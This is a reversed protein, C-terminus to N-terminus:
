ELGIREIFSIYGLYEKLFEKGKETIFFVKKSNYYSKLILSNKELTLILRRFLLPEINLNKEINIAYARKHDKILKLITYYLPIEGNIKRLEIKTHVIYFLIIIALLDVITFINYNYTNKGPYVLIFSFITLISFMTFLYILSKRKTLKILIIILINLYLLFIFILPIVNSKYLSQFAFHLSVLSNFLFITTNNMYEAFKIFNDKIYSEWLYLVGMTLSFGHLLILLSTLNFIRLLSNSIFILYYIITTIIFFLISNKFLNLKPYSLLNNWYRVKYLIYSLLILSIFKLSLSIENLTISYLM